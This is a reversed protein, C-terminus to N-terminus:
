RFASQFASRYAFLAPAGGTHVFLVHASRPFRGARILGTLGALGKGSYVPDLLLGELQAALTVADVMGPTPLGYQEGAYGGIVEIDGESVADGVGLFEATEITLRTVDQRVREPEADIDIGIVPIRSGLAALGVLLGAQTGGTGSALVIADLRLNRERLQSSLEIACRVYGLAGLVTSGGYPIVYPRSGQARLRDALATIADNRRPAWEVLKCQAGFLRDLLFNGTEAYDPDTRAVRGTMVALHCQLGLKAAAAAVQRLTNSQVVGGSVLVTAGQALADALLLELKRVKNGGFGLGTCDDRKVYVTPGGLHQSFRDMREIPTPLHALTLRPVQELRDIMNVDGM